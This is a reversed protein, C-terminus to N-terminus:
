VDSASVSIADGVLHPDPLEIGLAAVPRDESLRFREIRRCRADFDEIALGAPRVYRDDWGLFLCTRSPPDGLSRVALAPPGEVQGSASPTIGSGARVYGDGVTVPRTPDDIGGVLAPCITGTVFRGIWRRDVPLLPPGFPAGPSRVGVALSAPLGPQIPEFSDSSTRSNGGSISSHPM